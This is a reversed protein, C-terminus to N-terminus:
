SAHVEMMVMGDFNGLVINLPLMVMVVMANLSLVLLDMNEFRAALITSSSSLTRYM